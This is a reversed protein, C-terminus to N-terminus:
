NHGVRLPGPDYEIEFVDMLMEIAEVAESSDMNCDMVLETGVFRVLLFSEDQFGDLLYNLEKRDM